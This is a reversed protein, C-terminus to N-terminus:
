EIDIELLDVVNDSNLDITSGTTKYMESMFNLYPDYRLIRSKDADFILMTDDVRGPKLVTITKAIYNSDGTNEFSSNVRLIKIGDNLYLYNNALKVMGLYTTDPVGAIVQNEFMSFSDTGEVTKLINKSKGCIFFSDVNYGRVFGTPMLENGNDMLPLSVKKSVLNTSIREIKINGSTTLGLIYIDHTIDDNYLYYPKHTLVASTSYLTGSGVITIDIPINSLANQYTTAVKILNTSVAITYYTTNVILPRPMRDIGPHKLNFKITDGTHYIHPTGDTVIDDTHNTITINNDINAIVINMKQQTIDPFQGLYSLNSGLKVIRNNNYDCLFIFQNDSDAVVSSPFRLTGPVGYVGYSTGDYHSISNNSDLRKVIHKDTCQVVYTKFDSM